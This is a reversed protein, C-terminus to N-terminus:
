VFILAHSTRLLSFNRQTRFFFFFFLQRDSTTHAHKADMFAPDVPCQEMWLVSNRDQPFISSWKYMQVNRRAHTTRYVCTYRVCLSISAACWTVSACARAVQRFCTWSLCSHKFDLLSSDLESSSQISMTYLGLKM